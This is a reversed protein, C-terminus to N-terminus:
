GLLFRLPRTRFFWSCPGAFIRVAKGEHPALGVVARALSSKGSGSEGILGVTEGATLELSAGDVARLTKLRSGYSVVLNSVVLDTNL